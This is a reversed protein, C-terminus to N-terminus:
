TRKPLRWPIRWDAQGDGLLSTGGPAQPAALLSQPRGVIRLGQRAPSLTTTRTLVLDIQPARPVLHTHDQLISKLPSSAHDQPQAVPTSPMAEHRLHALWRNELDALNDVGYVQRAALDYGRDAATQAFELVRHPAQFETLFEVFMLSQGYFVVQESATPCDSRRLMEVITPVNRRQIARHVAQRFLEKKRPPDAWSAIGEDAWRPLRHNPCFDALVAHTLEHALATLEGTIPDAMLDIRRSIIQGRQREVRCVGRTLVGNRGVEQLYDEESAHVVVLARPVWDPAETAPWWQEYLGQRLLECKGAVDSASWHTNRSIVVFNQVHRTKGDNQPLPERAHSKHGAAMLTISCVVVVALGGEDPKPWSRLRRM